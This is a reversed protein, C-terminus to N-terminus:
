TILGIAGCARRRRTLETDDMEPTIRRLADCDAMTTKRGQWAVPSRPLPRSITALYPALRQFAAFLHEFALSELATLDCGTPIDFWDASVIPGSDVAAAMEHVTIGFRAANEYLAFVAPYRGPREAPGPHFNYGPGSLSALIQPPVIIPSCFSLLRATTEPTACCRHLDEVSSATQIELAPNHRRLVQALIPAEVEGTLLIIKAITM